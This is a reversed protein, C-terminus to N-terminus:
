RNTLKIWFAFFATMLGFIFIFSPNLLTTMDMLIALIFCVFSSVIGAEEFEYRRILILILIVFVSIIFLMGMLGGTVENTFEVIDIFTQNGRTLYTINSVM